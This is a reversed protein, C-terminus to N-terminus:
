MWPAATNKRSRQMDEGFVNAMGDKETNYDTKRKETAGAATAFQHETKPEATGFLSSDM